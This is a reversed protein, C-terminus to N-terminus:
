VYEYEEEEEEEEVGREPSPLSKVAIALQGRGDSLYLSFFSRFLFPFSFCFSFNCVSLVGIM